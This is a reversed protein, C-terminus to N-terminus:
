KFIRDFFGKKNASIKSEIFKKNEGSLHKVLKKGNIKIDFMAGKEIMKEAVLILEKENTSSLEEYVEEVNNNDKDLKSLLEMTNKNSNIQSPLVNDKAILLEFLATEGSLEKKYNMDILDSKLMEKIMALNKNASALMLPTFGNLSANGFSRMPKNIIESVDGRLLVAKMAEVAGESKIQSLFHIPNIYDEKQNGINLDLDLMPSKLLSVFTEENSIKAIEIPLNGILDKINPDANYKVLLDVIESFGAFVAYMLPTYGSINKQDLIAGEKLVVRTNVEIGLELLIRIQEVQRNGILMHLAPINKLIPYNINELDCKIKKMVRDFFDISISQSIFAFMEIPTLSKDSIKFKYNSELLLDAFDESFKLALVVPNEVYENELNFDYGLNLIKKVIDRKDTAIAINIVSPHDKFPMIIIEKDLLYNAMREDKMCLAYFLLNASNNLENINAGNDLLAKLADFDGNLISLYTFSVNRFKDEEANSNREDKVSITKNVDIGSNIIFVSLDSLDKNFEERKNSMLSNALLIAKFNLEEESKLKEIEKKLESYKKEKYLKTIDEYMNKM